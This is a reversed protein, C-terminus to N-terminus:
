IFPKNKHKFVSGSFTWTTKNQWQSVKQLPSNTGVQKQGPKNKTNNNKEQM